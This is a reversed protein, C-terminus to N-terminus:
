GVFSSISRHFVPHGLWFQFFKHAEGVLFQTKHASGVNLSSLEGGERVTRNRRLDDVFARDNEHIATAGGFAVLTSM